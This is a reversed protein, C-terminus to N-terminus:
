KLTVKRLYYSSGRRRDRVLFVIFNKGRKLSITHSFRSARDLEVQAGNISVSSGVFTIGKVELSSQTVTLNNRPHRIQLNPNANDYIITLKRSKTAKLLAGQAGRAAIYWLYRGETLKGAPVKLSPVRTKTQYLPRDLNQERYITVKYSSTGEIPDWSLTFKPLKNQYYVKTNGDKQHVTNRPARQNKLRKFSTDTLIVIKGKIPDGAEGHPLQPTVRWYYRGRRLKPLTLAHRQIVDSFLPRRMRSNRAVEVLSGQAGAQPKWRITLPFAMSTAFIRTTGKHRIQLPAPPPGNPGNIRGRSIAAEQGAEVRVTRRKSQLTAEGANVKITARGRDHNVKIDLRKHTIATNIRVGQIEFSSGAKGREGRVKLRMRGRTHKLRLSPETTGTKPPAQLVTVQAPGSVSSGQGRETGILATARARLRVQTGPPVEMVQGRRVRTFKADGPKKILVRGRGTSQVFFLVEDAIVTPPGADPKIPAAADPRQSTLVLESGAEVTRIGGQPGEVSAQGYSVMVKPTSSEVNPVSITALASSGLKIKQGGVMIMLESAEVDSSKGVVAGEKLTLNLKTSPLSSRLVVMSDPKITLKGGNRLALIAESGPGTTLRGGVHLYQGQQAPLEPAKERKMVRVTGSFSEVKAVWDQPTESGCATLALAVGLTTLTLRVPSCAPRVCREPRANRQHLSHRFGTM